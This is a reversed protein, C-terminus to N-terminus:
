GSTSFTISPGLVSSSAYFYIKKNVNKFVTSVIDKISVTGLHPFSSGFLRSITIGTAETVIGNSVTFSAQSQDGVSWFIHINIDSSLFSNYNHIIIDNLSQGTNLTFILNASNHEIFNYHGITSASSSAEKSIINSRYEKAISEQTQQTSSGTAASTQGAVPEIIARNIKRTLFKSRTKSGKAGYKDKIIPM